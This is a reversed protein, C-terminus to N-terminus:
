SRTQVGGRNKKVIGYVKMDNEVDSLVTSGAGVVVNSGINLCQIVVAGAGIFSNNGAHVAGCIVAGTAVHCLDGIVSEHEVICGTNIICHKGISVGTNITTNKGIFSGEGIHVDNALVASSDIIVPSIFGLSEVKKVLIARANPKGVSGMTVFAYDFGNNKLELLCDDNGVVMCGNVTLGKPLSCDTIVIESYEKIESLSDIVSKCHGGGGVLVLKKDM